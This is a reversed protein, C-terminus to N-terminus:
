FLTVIVVHQMCVKHPICYTVKQIVSPRKDIYKHFIIIIIIIIIIFWSLLLLESTGTNQFTKRNKGLNLLLTLFGGWLLCSEGVTYFVIAFRLCNTKSKNENHPVKLFSRLAIILKSVNTQRAGVTRIKMLNPIGANKSFRDLFNL